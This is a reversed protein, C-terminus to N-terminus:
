AAAARQEVHEVLFARVQAILADLPAGRTPLPQGYTVDVRQGLRTDRRGRPLVDITGRIAIPLIPLGTEAALKFGGKKLAGIRGDRSRTGEPAIWVHTGHKLMEAAVDLSALARRRDSRDIEIFGAGRMAEGFVPIRFLEKKTVMRMRGRVVRFLVPIDYHSQHNSMVVYPHSFDPQSGHVRLDIRAGRVLSSSWDELREDCRDLTLRGVASEAVTPVCVRVTHAVALISEIVSM